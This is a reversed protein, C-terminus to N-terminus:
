VGGCYLRDILSARAGYLAPEKPSIIEQGNEDPTFSSNLKDVRQLTNVVSLFLVIM